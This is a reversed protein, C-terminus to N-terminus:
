LVSGTVAAALSFQGNPIDVTGASSAFAGQTTLTQGGGPIVRLTGNTLSLPEAITGPLQVELLSAAGQVTTGSAAGSAGLAATSRSVRATGSTITLPGTFNSAANFNVVGQGSTTVSGNGTLAAVPDSGAAAAGVDIISGSNVTSLTLGFGHLDVVGSTTLALRLRASQRAYFTQNSALLLGHQFDTQGSAFNVNIGNTLALAQGQMQYGDATVTLRDFITGAVNNHNCIKDSVPPFQAADGPQPQQSASWNASQTWSSLNGDGSWTRTLGTPQIGVLVLTVDNGNLGQYSIRWQYGNRVVISGETMAVGGNEGPPYSFTGSIAGASNKQLVILSTGLVASQPFVSALRFVAGGLTVNGSAVLTSNGSGAEVAKVFESAANLTINRANLATSELHVQGGSPLATLDRITTNDGYFAGDNLEVDMGTGIGSYHLEGHVVRALSLGSLGTWLLKGPNTSEQARVELIAQGAGNSTTINGNLQLLSLGLNWVSPSAGGPLIINATIAPVFGTGALVLEATVSGNLTLTGGGAVRGGTLVLNNVTTAQGNLNADADREVTLNITPLQQPRLWNLAGEERVTFNTGALAPGNQRDLSLSTGKAVTVDGNATNIGTGGITISQGTGSFIIDGNHILFGTLTLPKQAAVMNPLVVNSFGGGPNPIPKSVRDFQISGSYTLPSAGAAILRGPQMVLPEACTTSEVYLGGNFDYGPGLQEVNPFGSGARDRMQGADLDLVTPQAVSGLGGSHKVRVRPGGTLTILGTLNNATYLM